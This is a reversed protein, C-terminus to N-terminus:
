LSKPVALNKKGFKECLEKAIFVQIQDARKYSISLGLPYLKNINKKRDLLLM